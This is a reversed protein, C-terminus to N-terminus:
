PQRPSEGAALPKIAPNRGVPIAVVAFPTGARGTFRTGLACTRNRTM